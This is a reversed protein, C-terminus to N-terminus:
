KFLRRWWSPAPPKPIQASSKQLREGVGPPASTQASDFRLLDEVTAFEQAAKQTSQHEATHEQQEESQFKKQQKM